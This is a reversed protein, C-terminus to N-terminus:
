KVDSALASAERVLIQLAADVEPLRNSAPQVAPVSQAVLLELEALRESITGLGFLGCTGPLKHLESNILNLKEKEYDATSLDQITSRIAKLRSPFSARFKAQLGDFTPAPHNETM